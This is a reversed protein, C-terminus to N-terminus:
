VDSFYPINCSENVLSDFNKNNTYAEWFDLDVNSRCKRIIRKLYHYYSHQPIIKFALIYSTSNM